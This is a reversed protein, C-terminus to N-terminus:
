MHQYIIIMHKCSKLIETHNDHTQIQHEYTSIQNEYTEFHNKM